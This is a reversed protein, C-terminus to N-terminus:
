ILGTAIILISPPVVCKAPHICGYSAARTTPQRNIASDRTLNTTQKQCRAVRLRSVVSLARLSSIVNRDARRARHDPENAALLVARRKVLQADDLRLAERALAGHR